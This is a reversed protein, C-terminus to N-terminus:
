SQWRVPQAPRYVCLNGTAITAALHAGLTPHVAAIRSLADKIRGAVAKRARERDDGLRRDRQGLGAAASLERVLFAREDALAAARGLDHQAQAEDIDADLAGLRSRYQQRAQHDLVPDAGFAAVASAGAGAILSIAPVALAPSALLTAIDGLGKVDRLRVEHGAYCIHWTDGDRRFM